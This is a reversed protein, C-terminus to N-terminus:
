FMTVTKNHYQLYFTDNKSKKKIQSTNKNFQKQLFYQM